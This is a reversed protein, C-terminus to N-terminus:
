RFRTSILFCLRLIDGSVSGYLVEVSCRIAVRCLGSAVELALM